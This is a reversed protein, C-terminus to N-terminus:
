NSIENDNGLLTHIHRLVTIQYDWNESIKLMKMVTNQMEGCREPLAIKGDCNKQRTRKNLTWYIRTFLVGHDSDAHSSYRRKDVFNTGVKASLPLWKTM